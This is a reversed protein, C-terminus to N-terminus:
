EKEAKKADALLKRLAKINGDRQADLVQKNMGLLYERSGPMYTSEAGYGGPAYKEAQHDAATMIHEDEGLQPNHQKSFRYARLLSSGPHTFSSLRDADNLMKALKTKPRGKSARHERVANAIAKLRRERFRERLRPDSLVMEAGVTHHEERSKQLGIDHLLAAADAAATDRYGNKEALAKMRDRVAQIHQVGHAPDAPKEYYRSMYHNVDDETLRSAKDMDVEDYITKKGLQRLADELTRSKDYMFKYPYEKGTLQRHALEPVRGRLGGDEADELLYRDKIEKKFTDLDMLDADDTRFSPGRLYMKYHMDRLKEADSPSMHLDKLEGNGSHKKISVRHGTKNKIGRALEKLLRRREKGPAEVSLHVTGEEPDNVALGKLGRENLLGHYMRRLGVGQVANGNVKYSREDASQM